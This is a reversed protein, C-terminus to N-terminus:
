YIGTSIVFNLKRFTGARVWVLSPKVKRGNAAALRVSYYGHRLKVRYYGSATSPVRAAIQGSRSFVLTTKVPTYCGPESTPCNPASPGSLVHGYLGTTTSPTTTAPATATTAVSTTTTSPPGNIGPRDVALASGAGALALLVFAIFRM